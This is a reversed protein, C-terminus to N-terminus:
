GTQRPRRSGPNEQPHLAPDGRPAKCGWSTGPYAWTLCVPHGVCGRRWWWALDNGAPGGGDRLRGRRRPPSKAKGPPEGGARADRPTTTRTSGMSLPEPSRQPTPWGRASTGVTAVAARAPSASHRRSCRRPSSPGGHRRRPPTAGATPEVEDTEPPPGREPKAQEEQPLDAGALFAVLHDAQGTFGAAQRVVSEIVDVAPGVGESQPVFPGGRGRALIEGLENLLVVDTKSNGGDVALVNVVVPVKREEGASAHDARRRDGGAERVKAALDLVVPVTRLAKALGGAGATEQGVCGCALPFTEDVDRAAQGGVRLQFLVAQAGEVGQRVDATAVVKAQHGARALMRRSVGAVLELRSADPDVLAIESLPLEDRLRAFGDILEPTYTSGGGVVALKM